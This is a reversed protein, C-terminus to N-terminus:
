VVQKDNPISNHVHYSCNRGEHLTQRTSHPLVVPGQFTMTQVCGQTIRLPDTVHLATEVLCIGTLWLAMKCLADSSGVPVDVSTLSNPALMGGIDLEALDELTM